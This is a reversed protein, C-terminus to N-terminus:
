FILILIFIFMMLSILIFLKIRINIEKNSEHEIKRDLYIDETKISLISADPTINEDEILTSEIIISECDEKKM